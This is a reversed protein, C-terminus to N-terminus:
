SVTEDHNINLGIFARRSQFSLADPGTDVLIVNM